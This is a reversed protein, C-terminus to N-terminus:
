YGRGSTQGGPAPARMPSVPPVPTPMEDRWEIHGDLYVVNPGDSGHNEPKDWMIPIRSPNQENMHHGAGAYVYAAQADIDDPSEIFRRTSPCWLLHEGYSDGEGLWECLASLSEPMWGNHEKAYTSCYKGLISLNSMCAARNAQELAVAIGHSLWVAAAAGLCAMVMGGIARARGRLAGDSRGIRGLALVGTVMAPVIFALCTVGLGVFGLLLSDTGAYLLGCAIGGPIVAVLSLIGCWLSAGALKCVQDEPRAEGEGARASTDAEADSM